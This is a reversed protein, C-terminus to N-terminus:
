LRKSIGATTQAYEILRLTQAITGDSARVRDRMRDAVAQHILDQWERPLTAVAWTAADRKSVIAGAYLTYLIRCLSLVVYSQYGPARLGDPQDILHAAWGALLRCMAARLDDHSVHEILTTPDPGAWTIGATRLVHCHVVWSEDMTDVKLREGPGRDLKLHAAHARDFRRLGAEPMYICELETAFWVPERALRDHILALSPLRHRVDGVTAIVVDIDSAADFAGLAVSGGIYMGRFETGLVSEVQFRLRDLFQDVDAHGTRGVRRDARTL